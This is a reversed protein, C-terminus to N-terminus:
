SIQSNNDLHYKDMSLSQRVLPSLDQLKTGTIAITEVEGKYRYLEERNQLLDRVYEAMVQSNKCNLYQNPELRYGRNGEVTSLVPIGLGLGVALKTSSGRSYYFVPNLFISWRSAEITFEDESLRGLYVIEKYENQLQVGKSNPGGILRIEFDSINLLRLSNILEVLGLENPVHDLSGIFGIYNSKPNWDVFSNLIVRYVVLPNAIGLWQEIRQEQESLVFVQDIYQNRFKSETYLNLGLRFINRLFYLKNLNSKVLYHLYDGSENGHSLIVVKVEAGYERKIPKGFRLLESKNLFVIKINNEEIIGQISHTYKKPDYLKYADVKFKRLLRYILRRSISVDFTILDFGSTELLQYFEQSCKQVGGNINANLDKPNTVFLARKKVTTHM